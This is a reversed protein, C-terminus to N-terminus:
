KIESAPLTAPPQSEDDSIRLPFVTLALRFNAISTQASQTTGIIKTGLTADKHVATRIIPTAAAPWWPNEQLRKVVAESINGPLTTADTTPIPPMAPAIPPMSM